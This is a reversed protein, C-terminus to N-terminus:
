FFALKAVASGLYRVDELMNKMGTGEFIAAAEEVLNAKVLLM